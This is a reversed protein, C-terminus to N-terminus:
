FAYNIRMRAATASDDAGADSSSATALAYTISARDIDFLSHTYAAYVQTLSPDAAGGNDVTTQILGIGFGGMTANAGISTTDTSTLDDSGSAVNVNIAAGGATFGATIGFGSYDTITAGAANDSSIIDAGATISFSGGNFTVSPRIGSFANEDNGAAVEDGWISALEFSVADGNVHLAFQGANDGVRGRTKNAQYSSVGGAEVVVTDKGLPFLNAAEFRGAQLDWSSNGFKVWADDVATGGNKLALVTGKGSVFNDGMKHEGSVNVAVRGGQSFANDTNATTSINTDLEIDAGVALASDAAATGSVGLAFLASAILTLQAKM